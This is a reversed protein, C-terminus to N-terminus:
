GHMSPRRRSRRGPAVPSPSTTVSEVRAVALVDAKALEELSWEKVFGAHATATLLLASCLGCISDATSM